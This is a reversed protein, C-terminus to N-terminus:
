QRWSLINSLLLNNPSLLFLVQWMVEMGVEFFTLKEEMNDVLYVKATSQSDTSYTIVPALTTVIIESGISHSFFPDPLFTHYWVSPLKCM